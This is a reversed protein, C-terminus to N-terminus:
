ENKMGAKYMLCYHMHSNADSTFKAGCTCPGDSFSKIQEEKVELLSGDKFKIVYFDSTVGWLSDPKSLVTAVRGEYTVKSGISFVPAGEKTNLHSADVSGLSSEPTPNGWINKLAQGSNIQQQPLAAQSTAKVLADYTEQLKDLDEKTM